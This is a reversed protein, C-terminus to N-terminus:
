WEFETGYKLYTIEGTEKSYLIDGVSYGNYDIISIMYDEDLEYLYDTIEHKLVNLEKQEVLTTGCVDCHSGKTLGTETCTPAVEEDIVIVHGVSPLTVKYQEKCSSCEYTVTSSSSCDIAETKNIEVYNHAVKNTNLKEVVSCGSCTREKLGNNVCTAPTKEVWENWSHIHVQVSDTDNNKCSVLSFCAIIFLVFVIKKNM